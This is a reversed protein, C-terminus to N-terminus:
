ALILVQLFFGWSKFLIEFDDKFLLTATSCLTWLSMFIVMTLVWELCIEMAICANM